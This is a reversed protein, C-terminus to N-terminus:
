FCEDPFDICDRTELCDICAFALYPPRLAMVRCVGAEGGTPSCPTPVRSLCEVDIQADPRCVPACAHALSDLTRELPGYENCLRALELNDSCDGPDDVGAALCQEMAEFLVPVCAHWARCYAFCLDRYTARTRGLLTGSCANCDGGPGDDPVAQERARPSIVRDCLACSDSGCAAGGEQPEGFVGAVLMTKGAGRAEYPVSSGIGDGCGVLHVAPALLLSSVAIARRM